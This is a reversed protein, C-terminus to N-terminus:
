KKVQVPKGDPGITWTQGSFPGASFTRGHGATLGTLDPSASTQSQQGNGNMRQQIRGIQDGISTLRNGGETRLAKLSGLIQAVTADGSILQEAEKRASDTLQGALNPQTLIKAYENQVSQLYTKFEALPVSGLAQQSISRIPKNLLPSGTDPIKALTQELLASNKDATELFAQAADSFKQQQGLSGANAKYLAQLTPVDMGAEAAIAGAKNTIAARIAAPRPQNGIGTPPFRGTALYEKVAQYLGNPTLGTTSEPKNVDPGVPRSADNMWSPMSAVAAATMNNVQVSAPPQSQFIGAKLAEARTMVKEIPKGHEDVTKITILDNGARTVQAIETQADEIAKQADTTSRATTLRALTATRLAATTANGDPVIADLQAQYRKLADPTVPAPKSLDPPNNSALPPATLDNPNLLQEKDGLKVPAGGGLRSLATLKPVLQAPDALLGDITQKLQDPPFTGNAAMQQAVLQVVQRPDSDPHDRLVSLITGAGKAVVAQQKDAFQQRATAEARHADNLGGIDKVVAPTLDGFGQAAMAKSLGDTDWVSVDGEKKLYPNQAEAPPAGEPQPGNPVKPTMATALAAKGAAQHEADALTLAEMKRRPDNLATIAQAGANAVGTAAGSWARGREIAAQAQANAVAMARAAEIAGPRELLDGISLAAHNPATSYQFPM